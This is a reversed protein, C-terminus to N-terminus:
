TGEGGRQKSPWLPITLTANITVVPLGGLGAMAELGFWSYQLGGGLEIGDDNGWCADVEYRNCWSAYHGV